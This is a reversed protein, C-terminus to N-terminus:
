QQIYFVRGSNRGAEPFVGNWIKRYLRENINPDRPYNCFVWQLHIGICSMSFVPTVGHFYARRNFDVDDWGYNGAFREDFGNISAVNSKSISYNKPMFGSNAIDNIGPKGRDMWDEIQEFVSDDVEKNKVYEILRQETDKKFLGIRGMVCVHRNEYKLHTEIHNELCNKSLFCDDDNFLLYKGNAQLAGVNRAIPNGWPTPPILIYKLPYTIKPYMTSVMQGTGDTSGNDVIIVEFEDHPLTQREFNLIHKELSSKSNCGLLIVSIKLLM